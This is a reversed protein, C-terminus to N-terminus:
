PYFQYKFTGKRVGLEVLTKGAEKNTTLPYLMVGVIVDCGEAELAAVGPQLHPAVQMFNHRMPVGWHAQEMAAIVALNSPHDAAETVGHTMTLLGVKAMASGEIPM